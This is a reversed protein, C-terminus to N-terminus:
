FTLANGFYVGGRSNFIEAASFSARAPRKLRRSSTLSSTELLRSLADAFEGLCFFVFVKENRRCLAYSLLHFTLAGLKDDSFGVFFIGGFYARIEAIGYGKVDVIGDLESSYGDLRFVAFHHDVVGKVFPKRGLLLPKHFIRSQDYFLGWRLRFSQIFLNNVSYVARDNRDLLGFAKEM